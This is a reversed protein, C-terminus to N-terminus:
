RMRTVSTSLEERASLAIATALVLDDHMGPRAGSGGNPLRVFTRCEALFRRSAFCEPTEVLAVALRGLAVPRSIATTLWGPSGGQHYIRSYECVTEALALIATGHNNREIVLWANNYEAALETVIRALALGGTHSAFEACQLGSELELVEVASYDGESGGGAPDVAVLYRKGPLPPLWIEMEGNYRIELPDPVGKMREEIVSLEFIADGSSLFCTESDEAFEQAALRHFSTKLQRRFGIQELDLGIHAVLALEEPSLTDAKVEEKRYSHEMWWPFFHKVVGSERAHQWEGYFCDGVGNPTSELIQEADPTLAARLSALTEAPDGPWHALESCHLNQITLGRGANRDGASIVMYESDLETFSLRSVSSRSTKLPGNRLSAPLEELFRRVIRFIAEAAHQTHAVELTLTGPHTITKLFFRAAIWTTLGLQRAKLVINRQGRQLEFAAQAANARLPAIPGQRTRIRLLRAVLETLVSRGSLGMPYRDLLRGIQILQEQNVFSIRPIEALSRSRLELESAM